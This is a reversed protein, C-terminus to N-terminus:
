KTSFSASIICCTKSIWYIKKNGLHIIHIELTNKLMCNYMYTMILKFTHFVTLTILMCWVYFLNLKEKTRQKLFDKMIISSYHNASLISVATHMHHIFTKSALTVTCWIYLYPLHVLKICVIKSHNKRM